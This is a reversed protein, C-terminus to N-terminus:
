PAKSKIAQVYSTWIDCCISVLRATREPGFFDFFASFTDITLGEGSEVVFARILCRKGAAWPM